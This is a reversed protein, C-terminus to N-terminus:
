FIWSIGVSAASQRDDGESVRYRGNIQTSANLSYSATVSATLTEDDDQQYGALTYDNLDLSRSGMTVWETDERQEASLSIEGGVNLRQDQSRFRAFVGADLLISEHNQEGFSLATSRTSEEDYGDVQTKVYRIGLRPGLQWQAYEAPLLNIGANAALGMSLGDTSATETRTASGLQIRRQLNDFDHLSLNVSADAFWRDQQYSAFGSFSYGDMEYESATATDLESNLISVMGGVALEPSLQYRGGLSMVYQRTDADDSVANNRYDKDSYETVSFLEVQGQNLGQGYHGLDIQQQLRDLELQASSMAMQPLLAAEEPARVVSGLYDAIVQQAAATPHVTDNFFLQSPDPNVSNIGYRTNEICDSGSYCTTLLEVGLGGDFGHASPNETMEAFLLRTNLPIINASSSRLESYLAENVMASAASAGASNLGLSGGDLMAMFPTSGVDPLNSVFITNAGADALANIGTALSSAAAAASAEDTVLGNLVDNGGGNVYYFTDSDAASVGALYSNIQAQVQSSIHGGTAYNDGGAGSAALPGLGLSSALRQIAVDETVTGGVPANTFRFGFQGSDTLSDGFAVLNNYPSAYASSSIVAAIAASLCISVATKM